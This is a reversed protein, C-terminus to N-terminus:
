YFNITKILKNIKIIIIIVTLNTAKITTVPLTLTASLSTTTTAAAVAAAAAQDALQETLTRVAPSTLLVKCTILPQLDSITTRIIVITEAEKDLLISYKITPSIIDIKQLLINYVRELLKKTPKEACLVVLQVDTDGKLLLGKALLGVRM